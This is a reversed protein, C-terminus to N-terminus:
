NHVTSKKATEPVTSKKVIQFLTKTATEYVYTYQSTFPVLTVLVDAAFPNFIIRHVHIGGGAGILLYEITNPNFPSNLKSFADYYAMGAPNPNEVKHLEVGTKEKITVMESLKM